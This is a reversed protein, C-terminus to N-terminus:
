IILTRYLLYRDATKKWSNGITLNISRALQIKKQLINNSAIERKAKRRIIVPNVVQYETLFVEETVVEHRGAPTAAGFSEGLGIILAILVLTLRTFSLM